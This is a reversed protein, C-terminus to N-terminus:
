RLQVQQQLFHYQNNASNWVYSSVGVNDPKWNRLLRFIEEPKTTLELELNINKIENKLFEGMYGINIPVFSSHLGKTNHRPDLLLIKINNM